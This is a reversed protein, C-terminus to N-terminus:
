APPPTGIKDLAAFTCNRYSIMADDSKTDILHECPRGAQLVMANIRNDPGPRMSGVRNNYCSRVAHKDVAADHYHVRIDERAYCYNIALVHRIVPDGSSPFGSCGGIAITIVAVSVHAARAVLGRTEQV